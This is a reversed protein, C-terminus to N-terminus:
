IPPSIVGFYNHRLAIATTSPLGVRSASPLAPLLGSLTPVHWYQRITRTRHVHSLPPRLSGASYLEELAHGARFETSRPQSAARKRPKFINAAPFKRSPKHQRISLDRHLRRRLRSSAAPAFDAAEQRSHVATFTPVM